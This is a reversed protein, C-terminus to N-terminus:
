TENPIPFRVSHNKPSNVRISSRAPSRAPEWLRVSEKLPHIENSNQMNRRKNSDSSMQATRKQKARGGKSPLNASSPNCVCLDALLDVQKEGLQPLTGTSRRQLRAAAGCGTRAYSSGDLRRRDRLCGRPSNSQRIQNSPTDEDYHKRLRQWHPALLSLQKLGYTPWTIAM